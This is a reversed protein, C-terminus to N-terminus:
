LIKRCEASSAECCEIIQVMALSRGLLPSRLLKREDLLSFLLLRLQQEHNCGCNLFQNLGASCWAGGRWISTNKGIHPSSIAEVLALAGFIEVLGRGSKVALGSNQGTNGAKSAQCSVRSVTCM